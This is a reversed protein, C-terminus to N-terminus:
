AEGQSPVFVTNAVAELDLGDPDATYVSLSYMVGPAVDYWLCVEVWESSGTHAQALMGDCHGVKAPEENEWMFYMGSINALEGAKLDYPQMRLTYEDGELTFRIEALSESAMWRYEADRAGEPLKYPLGCVRDLEQATMDTWPNALSAAQAAKEGVFGSNNAESFLFWYPLEAPVDEADAVHAWFAMDETFDKVPAGPLYLRMTDGESLGYPAATVYRIGDEITEEGPAQSVTLSDVRIERTFEDRQQGQTMHGSFSCMYVTGNPYADGAEGMESDHYEGTFSGDPLVKLETSWAGVGSSFSWSLPAMQEFVTTEAEALAGAACLALAAALICSLTKKM